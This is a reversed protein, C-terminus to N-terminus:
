LAGGEGRGGEEDNGSGPPITPRVGPGGGTGTCVRLATVTKTKIDSYPGLISNIHDHLRVRYSYTPPPVPPNDRYTYRIRSDIDGGPSPSPIQIFTGASTCTGTCREIHVWHSADDIWQIRIDNSGPSVSCAQQLSLEPKVLSPSLANQRSPFRPTYSSSINFPEPVGGVIIKGKAVVTITTQTVNEENNAIYVRFLDVVLNKSTAPTYCSDSLLEPPPLTATSCSGFTKQEKKLIRKGASDYKYGIVKQPSDIRILARFVVEPCGGACTDPFAIGWTIERGLVDFFSSLERRVQEKAQISRRTSSVYLVVSGILIFAVAFLAVSILMEILTFGGM